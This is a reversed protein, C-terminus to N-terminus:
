IRIPIANRTTTQGLSVRKTPYIYLKETVIDSSKSVNTRVITSGNVLYTNFYTYTVYYTKVVDTASLLPSGLIDDKDAPSENGDADIAIYSTMVQTSKSPLLETIVVQKVVDTTSIVKSVDSDSLTKTLVMTSYYTNTEFHTASPESPQLLSLYDEPATLTNTVTHQSTVVLPQEGDMITNLYTYTTKFVGTGM